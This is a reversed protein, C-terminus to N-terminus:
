KFHTILFGLVPSGWTTWHNLGRAELAPTYTQDRTRFNPDWMNHPKLFFLFLSSILFLFYHFCTTDKTKLSFM